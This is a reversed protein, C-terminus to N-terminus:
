NTKNQTELMAEMEIMQLRAADGQVPSLVGEFTAGIAEMARQETEAKSIVEVLSNLTNSDRELDEIESDSIGLKEKQTKVINLFVSGDLAKPKDAFITSLLSQLVESRRKTANNAKEIMQQKISAYKAKAIPDTCITEVMKTIAEGLPIPKVIEAIKARLDNLFVAIDRDTRLTLLIEEGSVGALNQIKQSVIALQDENLLLQDHVRLIDKLRDPTVQNTEIAKVIDSKVKQLIEMEEPSAVLIEGGEKISEAMQINIQGRGTTTRPSFRKLTTTQLNLVEETKGIRALRFGFEPDEGGSLKPVGGVVAAEFARSAMNSGDFSPIQTGPSFTVEAIDERGFYSDVLITYLLKLESYSFLKKFLMYDEPNDDYDVRGTVGILEPKEKFIDIIEKIYTDSFRIEADSQVVIGNKHIHDYFRAVAEAVGRNRAGGVNADEEPLTKGESAKDIAFLRLGSKQIAAVTEKEQETLTVEIDEGKIYRFLKLTEQNNGVGENYLEVRRTYDNETKFEDREPVSPPNNVVVILEFQDVNVGKQKALSAIPRLVYNRESYAPLVVCVECNPNMPEAIREETPPLNETLFNLVRARKSEEIEISDLEQESDEHTDIAVPINEKKAIDRPKQAGFEISQRM